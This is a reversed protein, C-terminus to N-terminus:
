YTRSWVKILDNRFNSYKNGSVQEKKTAVHAQMYVNITRDNIEMYIDPAIEDRLWGEPIESEHVRHRVRQDVFIGGIDVIGSHAAGDPSKWHVEAPQPFNPIGVEVSGWAKQYDGGRPAPRIKDAADEILYHHNYIVTCGITSYAIAQFGHKRFHLEAIPDNASQSASHSTPDTPASM